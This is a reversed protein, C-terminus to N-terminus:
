DLCISRDLCPTSKGRTTAAALHGSCRSAELMDEVTPIWVARRKASDMSFLSWAPRSNESLLLQHTPSIGGDNQHVTGVLISATVTAM